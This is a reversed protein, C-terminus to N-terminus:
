SRGAWDFLCVRYGDPDSLIVDRYGEPSSQLPSDLPVGLAQLENVAKELEEVEFTIQVTGPRAEGGKLALQASGARLLAFQDEEVLQVVELGLLDKYWAMAVPWNSVRIEVFDLSKIKM